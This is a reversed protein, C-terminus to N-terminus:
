RFLAPNHKIGASTPRGRCFTLGLGREVLNFTPNNKRGRTPRIFHICPYLRRFTGFDNTRVPCSRIFTNIRRRNPKREDAPENGDRRTPGIKEIICPARTCLRRRLFTADTRTAGFFIFVAASNIKIEFGNRAFAAGSSFNANM